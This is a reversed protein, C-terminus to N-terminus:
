VLYTGNAECEDELHVPTLHEQLVNANVKNLIVNLYKYTQTKLFLFM